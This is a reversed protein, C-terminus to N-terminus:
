EKKIVNPDGFRPWPQDVLSGWIDSDKPGSCVFSSRNTQRRNFTATVVGNRWSGTVDVLWMLDTRRAVQTIVRDPVHYPFTEFKWDFQPYTTRLNELPNYNLVYSSDIYRQIAEFLVFFDPNTLDVSGLLRRNKLHTEIIENPM